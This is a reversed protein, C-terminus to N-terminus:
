HSYERKHILAITELYYDFALGDKKQIQPFNYTGEMNELFEDFTINQDERAKQIDRKFADIDTSQLHKIAKELNSVPLAEPLELTATDGM